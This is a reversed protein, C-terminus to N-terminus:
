LEIRKAGDVWGELYKTLSNYRWFTDGTIGDFLIKRDAKVAIDGRFEVDGVFSATELRLGNEDIFITDGDCSTIVGGPCIRIVLGSNLIIEGGLKSGPFPFEGLADRLAEISDEDFRQDADFVADKGSVIWAESPNITVPKDNVVTETIDPAPVVIRALVLHDDYRTKDVSLASGVNMNIYFLQSRNDFPIPLRVDSNLSVVKGATYGRGATILVSGSPPSTATVDLGTIIRPKIAQALVNTLQDAIEALDRQAVVGADSIGRLVKIDQPTIRRDIEKAILEYITETTFQSRSEPEAM